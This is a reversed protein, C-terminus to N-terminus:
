NLKEYYNKYRFVLFLVGFILYFLGQFFGQKEFHNNNLKEIATICILFIGLGLMFYASLLGFVNKLTIINIIDLSLYIAQIVLLWIWGHNSIIRNGITKNELDYFLMALVISLAISIIPLVRFLIKNM